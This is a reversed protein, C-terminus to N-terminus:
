PSIYVPKLVRSGGSINVKGAIITGAATSAATLNVTRGPALLVGSFQAASALSIDVGTSLVNFLVNEPLLGGGLVVNGGVLSFKNTVTIVYTTQATGTLTFTAGGYVVFDTLHLSVHTGGATDNLSLSTNQNVTTLSNWGPRTVIGSPAYDALADAQASAAIADNKANNTLTDYAGGQFYQANAVGLNGPGNIQASGSRRLTGGTKVYATGDVKATGSLTISNGAIGINGRVTPSGFTVSTTDTVTVGGTLAFIAWESTRGAEGLDVGSFLLTARAPAAAVLLGVVLALAAKGLGSRLFSKPNKM